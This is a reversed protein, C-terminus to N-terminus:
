KELISIDGTSTKLDVLVRGGNYTGSFNDEDFKESSSDSGEIDLDCSIRGSTVKAKLDFATDSFLYLQIQGRSTNVTIPDISHQAMDISVSGSTSKVRISGSTGSIAIDGTTSDINIDGFVSTEIVTDGSSSECRLADAQCGYVNLDGSSGSLVLESLKMGTIDIDGSTCRVNMDLKDNEPLYVTLDFENYFIFFPSEYGIKIYLTSGVRYADLYKEQEKSSRVTGKLMAVADESQLIHIDASACDVRIETIGDLDLASSEDVNIEDGFIEQFHEFGRGNLYGGIIIVAGVVCVLLVATTILVVKTTKKMKFDEEKDKM